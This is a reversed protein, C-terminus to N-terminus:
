GMAEIFEKIIEVADCRGRYLERYPSDTVSKEEWIDLMVNLYETLHHKVEDGSLNSADNM